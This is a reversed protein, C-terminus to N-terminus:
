LLDYLEKLADIQYDPCIETMNEKGLHNYWCTQIGANKGGIIDATLSDGIMIIEERRVDGMEKICAEFFDKNPKAVGIVDSVFVKQIYELMEASALRNIQQQYQSNTAVYVPYKSALYKLVEVADKVPEHSNALGELFITEFAVGDADIHLKEFTKNWRNAFIEKKEIEGKELKGWFVDNIKYFCELMHAEYEIGIKEFGQKISIESCAQFDLLTNDVDILIFKIERLLNNKHATM